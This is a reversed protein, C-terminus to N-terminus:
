ECLREVKYSNFQLSNTYQKIFYEVNSWRAYKCEFYNVWQAHKWFSDDDCYM